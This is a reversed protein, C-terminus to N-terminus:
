GFARLMVVGGHKQVLRDQIESWEKRWTHEEGEQQDQEWSDSVEGLAAGTM